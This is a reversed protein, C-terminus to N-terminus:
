EQRELERFTKAIRAEREEVSMWREEPWERGSWLFRLSTRILWAAPLAVLVGLLMGGSRRNGLSVKTGEVSLAGNRNCTSTEQIM